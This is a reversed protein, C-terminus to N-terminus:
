SKLGLKRRRLAAMGLLGLGLLGVTAPEPVPTPSIGGALKSSGELGTTTQLRAGFADFYSAQLGQTTIQIKLSQIIDNAQRDNQKLGIDLDFQFVFNNQGTLNVGNGLDTADRYVTYTVGNPLNLVSIHNTLIQNPNFLTDDLGLWFGTIDGTHTSTDTFGTEIQVGELPDLLNTVKVFLQASDGTFSDLTFDIAMASRSGFGMLIALALGLSYVKIIKSIKM